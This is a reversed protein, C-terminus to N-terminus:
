TRMARIAPRRARRSGRHCDASAERDIRSFYPGSAFAGVSGDEADRGDTAMRGAARAGSPALPGRDRVNVGKRRGPPESYFCRSYLPAPFRRAARM